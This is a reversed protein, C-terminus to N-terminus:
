KWVDKTITYEDHLVARTHTHTHPPPSIRTDNPNALSLEGDGGTFYGFYQTTVYSLVFKWM